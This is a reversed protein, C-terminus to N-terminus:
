ENYNRGYLEEFFEKGREKIAHKIWPSKMNLFCCIERIFDNSFNDLFAYPEWDICDIYMRFDSEVERMHQEKEINRTINSLSM